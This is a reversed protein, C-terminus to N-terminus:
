YHIVMIPMTQQQLIESFANHHFLKEVLNYDRKIIILLDPKLASCYKSIGEKVNAAPIMEIHIKKGDENVLNIDSQIDGKDTDVYFWHLEAKFMKAFNVIKHVVKFSDNFKYNIDIPVAIKKVPQYQSEAHVIIVPCPSHKSVSEAVSGFLWRDFGSSGRTGMVVLDFEGSELFDKVTMSPIGFSFHSSMKIGEHTKKIADCTNKLRDINADEITKILEIAMNADDNAPLSQINLLFIEYDLQLAVHCAFELANKSIPSFDTPVLIKKMHQILHSHLHRIVSENFL